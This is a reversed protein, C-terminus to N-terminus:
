TRKSGKGIRPFERVAVLWQLHSHVLSPPAAAAGFVVAVVVVLVSVVAVVEVDVVVVFM